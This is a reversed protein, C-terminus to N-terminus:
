EDQTLEGPTEGSPITPPGRVEDYRDPAGGAEPVGLIAVGDPHSDL